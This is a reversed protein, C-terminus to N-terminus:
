HSVQAQKESLIQDLRPPTPSLSVRLTAVISFGAIWFSGLDLKGWHLRLTSDLSVEVFSFPDLIWLDKEPIQSVSDSIKVWPSNEFIDSLIPFMGMREEHAKRTWLALKRRFGQVFVTHVPNRKGRRLRRVSALKATFKTNAYYHALHSKISGCCKHILGRSPWRVESQYLLQVHDEEIDECVKAFCQLENCGDGQPVRIVDKKCYPQWETDGDCCVWVCNQWELSNETYNMYTAKWLFMIDKHFTSNWCYRVFVLLWAANKLYTSEDLQLSFIPSSKIRKLLQHQVDSAMDAIHHSVTDNSLLIILLRKASAPLVLDETTIFAKKCQGVLRAVLYSAKLTCKSNCTMSMISRKQMQLGNKERKFLEVPEGMLTQHKTEQHQKLKSPRLAENSNARVGCM